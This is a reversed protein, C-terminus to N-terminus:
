SKGRRWHGPAEGYQKKFAASLHYASSFGLSEAITELSENTSGILRRAKELRLQQLYQYPALGTHRKFERRFYSYAVGLEKALAPIDPPDAVCEALRREAREIVPALARNESGERPARALLALVQLGLAAREPDLGSADPARLRAHVADLLTELEARQEVEVVARRADLVGRQVLQTLTTGELEIWLETWGTAPNPAYRHWVGPLIVIASGARVDVLGTERSEFRGEGRSVFVIQCAGLVRGNDWTFIHDSPHNSPPYSAGPLSQQRGGASVAIGWAEAEPRRSLYRQHDSRRPQSM